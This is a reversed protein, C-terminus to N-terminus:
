CYKVDDSKGSSENDRYCPGAYDPICDKVDDSKVSSEDKSPPRCIFNSCHETCCESDSYCPGAYDPICDKVDKEKMVTPSAMTTKYSYFSIVISLLLFSKLGM